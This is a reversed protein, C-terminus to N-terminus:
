ADGDVRPEELQLGCRTGPPGLTQSLPAMSVVFFGSFAYRASSLSRATLITLSCVPSWAESHAAIRDIASFTAARGLRQAQPHPLGFTVSALAGAEGRVLPRPQLGQLALDPFQSLALSIKRLALAYKAAASSSRRHFGHDGEDVSM